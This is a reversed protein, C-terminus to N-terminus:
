EEGRVNQTTTSICSGAKAWGIIKEIFFEAILEGNDYFMIKTPKDLIKHVYIDTAEILIGDHDLYVIYYEKM